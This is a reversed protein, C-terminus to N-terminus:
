LLCHWAPPSCHLANFMDQESYYALNQSPLSRSCSATLCDANESVECELDRLDSLGRGDPRVNHELIMKRLTAAQLEEWGLEIDRPSAAGSGPVRMHQVPWLVSETQWAWPVVIQQPFHEVKSMYPLCVNYSHAGCGLLAAHAHENVTM